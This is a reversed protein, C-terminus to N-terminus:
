SNVQWRARTRHQRFRRSIVRDHWPGTVSANAWIVSRGICSISQNWAADATRHDFRTRRDFREDYGFRRDTRRFGYRRVGSRRQRYQARRSRRIKSGPAIRTRRRTAMRPTLPRPAAALRYDGHGRDVFGPDASISGGIGTYDQM